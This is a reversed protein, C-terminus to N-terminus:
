QSLEDIGGTLLFEIVMRDVLMEVPARDDTFRPGAAVSPVLAHWADALVDRLLPSSDAPLAEINAILNQAATPQMTAVLISNYADPVDLTHVSPFVDLL